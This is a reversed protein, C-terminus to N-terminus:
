SPGPVLGPSFTLNKSYTFYSLCVQYNVPQVLRVTCSKISMTPGVYLLSRRRVQRIDRGSLHSNSASLCRRQMRHREFLRLDGNWRM